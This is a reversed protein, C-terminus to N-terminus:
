VMFFRWSCFNIMMVKPSNNAKLIGIMNTKLM